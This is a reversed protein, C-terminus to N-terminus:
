PCIWSADEDGPDRCVGQCREKPQECTGCSFTGCPANPESCPSTFCYSQPKTEPGFFEKRLRENDIRMGENQIAQGAIQERLLENKLKQEEEQLSPM